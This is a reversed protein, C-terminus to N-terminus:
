VPVAADEARSLEADIRQVIAVLPRLLALMAARQDHAIRVAKTTAELLANTHALEALTTELARQLEEVVDLTTGPHFADLRALEKRSYQLAETWATM